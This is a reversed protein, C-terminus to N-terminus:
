GNQFTNHGPDRPHFMPEAARETGDMNRLPVKTGGFVPPRPAPRIPLAQVNSPMSMSPTSIKPRTLVSEINQEIVLDHEGGILILHEVDDRRLLVLQRTKDIDHIESIGLRAGRTSGNRRNLVKYIMLAVVLGGLILAAAFLSSMYPQLASM